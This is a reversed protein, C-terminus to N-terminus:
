KKNGNTYKDKRTVNDEPLQPVRRETVRARLPVPCSFLGTHEICLELRVLAIDVFSSGAEFSVPRLLFLSKKLILLTMQAKPVTSLRLLFFASLFYGFVKRRSCIPRGDM